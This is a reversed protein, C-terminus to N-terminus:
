AGLGYKEVIKRVFSELEILDEHTYTQENKGQPHIFWTLIENARLMADKDIISVVRKNYLHHIISGFTKTKFLDVIYNSYNEKLTSEMSYRFLFAGIALGFDDKRNIEEIALNILNNRQEQIKQNEIFKIKTNAEQILYPSTLIAKIKFVIERMKKKYGRKVFDCIIEDQESDEKLEALIYFDEYNRHYLIIKGDQHKKSYGWDTFHWPKKVLIMNFLSKKESPSTLEQFLKYLYDESFKKLYTATTTQWNIFKEFMQESFFIDSIVPQIKVFGSKSSEDRTKITLNEINEILLDNIEQFEDMQEALLTIINM